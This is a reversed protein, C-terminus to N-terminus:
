EQSPINGQKKAEAWADQLATAQEEASRSGNLVEQFGTFMVENFNQPALVDINYGFDQSQGEAALDELVQKFLESVELGGTDVPHAPIVNLLEIGLRATDDQLMYDLWTIAGEPNRAEEAVFLGGGVGAPPSISSGDISPFPFFGVEFDQVSENIASVLWTGTPNMAAEGSYFLANADDYTIANVGEPYYGAEVFDRFILEIATIVESTDWRGDGYLIDDLGQRGLINSAGISFMHGAPWQEQDGFAFPIKGQGKIDDAIQRLDDVTQPVESVLDKNYYVIIEEVENPVGFLTGDYTVRQKAWEYIDWGNQKYSDELSKLLGAGALVGGFGPGTDYGILDPPNDSQLRTQMVDRQSEPPIAEREVTYKPYEEQFRTVEIEINAKELATTEAVGTFYRIVEGGGQQSGGCGAVGLLTAGALGAGGLRLFEKRSFGKQTRRVMRRGKEM